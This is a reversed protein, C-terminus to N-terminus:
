NDLVERIKGIIESPLFPKLIHCVAKKHTKERHEVSGPDGSMFIAKVDPNIKNIEEFVKKGPKKPMQSDLIVVKVKEKNEIFKNIADEGDVATIVDYGLASLANSIIERIMDEDDAVLVTETGGMPMTLQVPKASSAKNKMLPLYIKFEAGKNKESEVNIYGDHQSIIGYAISLGLGTNKDIGKTTFFPEFIKLKTKEDMGIGSDKVTIFSYPVEAGCGHDGVFDSGITAAGTQIDIRGGSPMADKANTVLNILVQEIQRTDAMVTLANEHLDANLVIDKGIVRKMFNEFNKIINNIDVPEPSIPQKRSFTLLSKTLDAARETSAIIQEVSHKLENDDKIKMQLLSSYGVIATLINNFDHAVGEALQGIAGMRQSHELQKEFRKKEEEAQKRETIDRAAALVYDRGSHTIFRMSIETPMLTGDKRKSISEILLKQKSKLEEIRSKWSEEDLLFDVARLNLLEEYKYGLNMCARENVDLFSSTDPDIIYIADNSQNLLSRFLHLSEATKKHGIVEDELEKVKEKLKKTFVHTHKEHFEGSTKGAAKAPANKKALEFKDLIEQLENWFEESKKPKAIFAEAGLSMALEYDDSGTFIASYFIFPIKKLNKEEKIKKLFQFGDVLPMMADSIIVDPSHEKALNFGEDGNEAEIIECNHGALNHKLVDRSVLDDDAILVKM